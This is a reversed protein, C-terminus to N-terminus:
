KKAKATTPDAGNMLRVFANEMGLMFGVEMECRVGTMNHEWLNFPQGNLTITADKSIDIQIGEVAGWKCKTWDGCIGLQEAETATAEKSVRTTFKIPSGLPSNTDGTLLNMPFIPRNNDDKANLMKARAKTSLVWGNNIFELGNLYEEARIFGSYIGGTAVDIKHCGAFVDMEDGPKDSTAGALVTQDFKKGLAYPLRNIIEDTLASKDRLFQNSIPVIVALTYGRMKKIGLTPTENQKRDTEATWYAQPDGTITQFSLGRGPLSVRPAVQMIVSEQIAKAIIEKSEEHELLVGTTGRYLDVGM